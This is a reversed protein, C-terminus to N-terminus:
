GCSRYDHNYMECRINKELMLSCVLYMPSQLESTHEESRVAGAGGNAAGRAADALDDGSVLDARDSGPDSLGSLRYARPRYRLDSRFLTTYPSLQSLPPLRM